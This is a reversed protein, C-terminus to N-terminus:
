YDQKDADKGSNSAALHMPYALGLLCLCYTQM